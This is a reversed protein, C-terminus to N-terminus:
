LLAASFVSAGRAELASLLAHMETVPVPKTLLHAGEKKICIQELAPDVIDTRVYYARCIKSNDIALPDLGESYFAPHLLAVDELDRVVNSATPYRGAGEGEFMLTGGYKLDCGIRNLNLPLHAFSSDEPFACPEVCASVMGDEKRAYAYLRLRLGKEKLYEIDDETVNRIGRCPVAEEPYYGNFAISASIMLKRVTDPGDIDASPDREACGKEQADKLVDDFGRGGAMENLIYNCSGNMVGFVANVEDNNKVRELSNLWPIGGGAAATCRFSVGMEKSLSILERYYAAVVAKNSSVVNKGAKMAATIFEYTPHVGGLAEVVTDIEPDNLITEANDTYRAAMEETSFLSLVRTVHLYPHNKLIHDVGAGVVGYGLLGINM